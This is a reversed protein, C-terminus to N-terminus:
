RKPNLSWWIVSGDNGKTETIFWGSESLDRDLSPKHRTIDYGVEFKFTRSTLQNQIYGVARNYSIDPTLNLDDPTTFRTTM